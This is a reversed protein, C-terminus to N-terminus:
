DPSMFLRGLKERLQQRARYIRMEVAKASCNLTAAIEAHSHEEYEALILPVRLEEPLEALANRIASVREDVQMSEDPTPQTSALIEKLSTNTKEQEADLSVGPHRVRWRIRDRALNTAITYLWTSFKQRPDFRERNQYVRVFSEQALDEAEAENQLLRILYHFVPEAHRAMLENLGADHGELLRAMDQRDQEDTAPVSM